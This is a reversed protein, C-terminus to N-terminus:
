MSSTLVRTCTSCGTVSIIVPTSMTFVPMRTAAPSRSGNSCFSTRMLPWAMSTRMLASSGSRFKMGCAPSM